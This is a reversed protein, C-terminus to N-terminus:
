VVKKTILSVLRDYDTIFIRKGQIEILRRKKLESFVRSISERSTGVLEAFERMTIPIDVYIKDLARIGFKEILKELTRITKSFIDFYAMEFLKSSLEEIQESMCKFLSEALLPCHKMEEEVFESNIFIAEGAEIVTATYSYYDNLRDNFLCYDGFVEGKKKITIILENGNEDQMALKVLGSLIIYVGNKKDFNSVIIQGKYYKMRKENSEFCHICENSINKLTSNSESFSKFSQKERSFAHM